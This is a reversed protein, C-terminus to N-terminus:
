SMNLDEKSKSIVNRGADLFCGVVDHVKIKEGFSEVHDGHKKEM